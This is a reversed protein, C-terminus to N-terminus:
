EFLVEILGQNKPMWHGVFTNKQNVSLHGHKGFFWGRNERVWFDWFRINQPM